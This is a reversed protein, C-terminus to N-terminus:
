QTEAKAVSAKTNKGRFISRNSLRKCSKVLDKCTPSPWPEECVAHHSTNRSIKEGQLPLLLFGFMSKLVMTLSDANVDLVTPKATLKPLATLKRRLFERQSEPVLGDSHTQVKDYSSSVGLSALRVTRFVLRLGAVPSM